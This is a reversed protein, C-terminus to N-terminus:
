SGKLVALVEEHILGNTAVIEKGYISYTDGKFNSLRGGAEQVIVAGAAMDWPHLTVEWFGDFRGAAVYCMDLAASGARRVGQARLSFRTFHNLNNNATERIDYAFGTVLLAQNLSGIRSAHLRQGNLFAGQGTEAVFLEQRNPDFVVGLTPRGEYELGISVCYVPYGHAFNTTGDLPDIVWRYPSDSGRLNGGEEALIQHSPYKESLLKVIADEARQDADTVLNVTDKHRISFGKRACDELIAGAMRAAQIATAKLDERVAPFSYSDNQM